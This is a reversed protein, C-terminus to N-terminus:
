PRRLSFVYSADTPRVGFYTGLSVTLVVAAVGAWVYWRTYWAPGRPLPTVPGGTLPLAARTFRLPRAPDGVRSRLAGGQAYGEVYYELELAAGAPGLAGKPVAHAFRGGAAPALDQRVWPKKGKARVFLTARAIADPDGARAEVVPPRTLPDTVKVELGEAAAIQDRVQAALEAIEGAGYRAPHLPRFLRRRVSYLQVELAEGRGRELTVIWHVGVEAGLADLLAADVFWRPDGQLRERLQDHLVAKAAPALRARVTAARGCEGVFPEFGPRTVVLRCRGPPLKLRAPARGWLRGNLEVDAGPPESVVTLERAPAAQARQRAAQYAKTVEPPYEAEDLQLDPAAAAAEDFAAAADAARGAALDIRGRLLRARVFAQHTRVSPPLADLLTVARGLAAGAAAFSTEVFAKEATELEQKLREEAAARALAAPSRPFRDTLRAPELLQVTEAWGFARTVAAPTTGEPLWVAVRPSAEAASPAVAAVALVGLVTALGRV